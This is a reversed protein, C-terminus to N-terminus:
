NKNVSKIILEHNLTDFCKSLDMDVVYELSWKNHLDKLKRLQGKAPANLDIDM